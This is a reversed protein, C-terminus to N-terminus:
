STVAQCVPASHFFISFTSVMCIVDIKRNPECRFRSTGDGAIAFFITSNFGATDCRVRRREPCRHLHLGGTPNGHPGYHKLMPSIGHDTYGKVEAIGMVSCLFPDEGFSEEVRGWRLDRVVDICPALVQKVGMTNLEGAIHKTKQYALEPDFTSGLAINQPFITAGDQVVGHLSEAVPFGPIGLRTNEVLYTQIERFNRRCDAASLPFGEFFGYGGGACMKELKAKDLQAGNFIDWSHLLRIQAIKEDLTMRGLLDDVRM